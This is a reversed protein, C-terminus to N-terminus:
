KGAGSGVVAGAAAAAHETLAQSHVSVVLILSVPLVLALSRMSKGRKWALLYSRAPGAQFSRLGERFFYQRACRALRAPWSIPLQTCHVTGLKQRSAANGSGHLCHRRRNRCRCSCCGSLGALQADSNPRLHVGYNCRCHSDFNRLAHSDGGDICVCALIDAFTLTNYLYHADRFNSSFTTAPSKSPSNPSRSTPTTLAPAPAATSGGDTGPASWCTKVSRGKGWLAAPAPVVGVWLMSRAVPTASRM